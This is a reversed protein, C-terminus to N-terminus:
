QQRRLSELLTPNRRILEALRADPDDSLGDTDVTWAPGPQAPLPWSPPADGTPAPTGGPPGDATVTVTDATWAVRVGRVSSGDDVSLTVSLGPHAAVVLRVAEAVEAAPDVGSPAVTQGDDPAPATLRRLVEERRAMRALAEDLEGRM